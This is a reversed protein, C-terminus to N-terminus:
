PRQNRIRYALFIILPITIWFFGIMVIAGFWFSLQEVPSAPKPAPSHPAFYVGSYLSPYDSFYQQMRGIWERTRAIELLLVPLLQLKM